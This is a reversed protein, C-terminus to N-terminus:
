RLAFMVLLLLVFASAVIAIFATWADGGFFRVVADQVQMWAPRGPPAVASDFVPLDEGADLPGPPPYDHLLPDAIPAEDRPAPPAPAPSVAISPNTPQTRPVTDDSLGARTPVDASPVELRPPPPTFGPSSAREGPSSPRIPGPSTPSTVPSTDAPPVVSLGPPAGIGPDTGPSTPRLPRPPSDDGDDTDRHRVPLPIPREPAEPDPPPPVYGPRPRVEFQGESVEPDADGGKVAFAVRLSYRGPPVDPIAFEYRYKGSPYRDVNFRAGDVKLRGDGAADLDRLQLGVALDEQGDLGSTVGVNVSFAVDSGGEFVGDRAAPGPLVKSLATVSPHILEDVEVLRERLEGATRFRYPPSPDTEASLARNLISGLRTTARTAFRPNARETKLRAAAADKLSALAVRGLGDTPLDPGKDPGLDGMGPSMAARHLACCLAWTDWTPEPTGAAEPPLYPRRGAAAELQARVPLLPPVLPDDLICRGEDDLHLNSPRLNGHVIGGSTATALRHLARVVFDLIESLPAGGALRAELSVPYRPHVLGIRGDGLDVTGLLKPVFTWRQELAEDRRHEAAARCADALRMAEPVGAFDGTGLPVKLVALTGDEAKLAWTRAWSGRGIAGDVVWSAGETDTLIDGSHM